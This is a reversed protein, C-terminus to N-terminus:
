SSSKSATESLISEELSDAAVQADFCDRKILMNVHPVDYGKTSLQTKLSMSMASVCTLTGLLLLPVISTVKM